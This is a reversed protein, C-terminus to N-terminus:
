TESLYSGIDGGTKGDQEDGVEDHQGPMTTGISSSSDEWAAM